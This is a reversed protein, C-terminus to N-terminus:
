ITFANAVPYNKLTANYINYAGDIATDYAVATASSGTKLPISLGSM